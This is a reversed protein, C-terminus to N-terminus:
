ALFRLRRLASKPVPQRKPKEGEFIQWSRASHKYSLFVNNMLKSEGFFNTVAGFGEAIWPQNRNHFLVETIMGPGALGYISRGSREATLRHTAECILTEFLKTRPPAALLGTRPRFDVDSAIWFTPRVSLSRRFSNYTHRPSSDVDSYTGGFHYLACLRFFDSKAAAHHCKEYAKLQDIDFNELIFKNAEEDNYLHHYLSGVQREWQILLTQVDHPPNKDWYQFHPQTSSSDDGFEHTSILAGLFFSAFRIKMELSDDETLEKAEQGAKNADGSL